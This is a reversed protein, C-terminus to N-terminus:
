VEKGVRREESRLTSIDSGKGEAFDEDRRIEAVWELAQLYQGVQSEPKLERLVKKHAKEAEAFARDMEASKKQDKHHDTQVLLKAADALAVYSKFDAALAALAPDTPKLLQALRRLNGLAVPESRALASGVDAAADSGDARLRAIAPARRQADPLLLQAAVPQRNSAPLPGGLPHIALATAVLSAFLLASLRVSM